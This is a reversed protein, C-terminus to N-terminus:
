SVIETTFGDTTGFMRIANPYDGLAHFKYTILNFKKIGKQSKAAALQSGRKVRLAAKRRGHPAEEAPLAKTVYATCTVTNFRRIVAGLRKTSTELSRLTSETHLHLKALAHWTALKFLLTTVIKDHPQPLLDEFVPIASQSSQEATGFIIVPAIHVQLLDEFDHATRRKM